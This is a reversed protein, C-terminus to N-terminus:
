RSDEKEVMATTDGLHDLDMRAGCSACYNMAATDSFGCEEHIWGELKGYPDRIERWRGYRVVEAPVTPLDLAYEMVSEVGNLFHLNANAEDCGANGRRLPYGFLAVRSILDDM